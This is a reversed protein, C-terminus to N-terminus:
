KNTQKNTKASQWVNMINMVCVNMVDSMWWVMHLFPCQDCWVNMLGSMSWVPCQDRWTYFLVNMVSWVPCEDCWVNMVSSKKDCWVNIMCIVSNLFPCQDCLCEDCRTYFFVNMVSSMWWVLCEDFRVNMVCHTSFPMSWEPCEDCQTYFLVNFVGHTFFSMWWVSCQDCWTCFHVNIVGNHRTHHIDKKVVTYHM